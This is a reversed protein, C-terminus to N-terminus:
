GDAGSPPSVLHRRNKPVGGVLHALECNMWLLAPHVSNPKDAFSKLFYAEITPSQLFNWPLWM